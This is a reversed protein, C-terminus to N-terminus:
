GASRTAQGDDLPLSGRLAVVHSGVRARRAVVADAVVTEAAAAAIAPDRDVRPVRVAEGVLQGSELFQAHEVLGHDYPDALDGLAVILQVHDRHDRATLREAHLHPLVDLIRHLAVLDFARVGDGDTLVGGVATEAVEPYGSLLGHTNLLRREAIRLVAGTRQGLKSRASSRRFAPRTDLELELTAQSLSHCSRPRSRGVFTELRRSHKPIAVTWCRPRQPWRHKAGTAICACFSRALLAMM